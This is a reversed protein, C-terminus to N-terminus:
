LLYIPYDVKVRERWKWEDIGYQRKGSAIDKEADDLRKQDLYAYHIISWGLPCSIISKFGEKDGYSVTSHYPKVFHVNRDNYFVKETILNIKDDSTHLLDGNLNFMPIGVVLPNARVNPDTTYLSKDVYNMLFHRIDQMANYNLKEDQDVSVIWSKKDCKDLLWNRQLDMREFTHQFLTLHYAKKYRQLVEWTGDTSGGDVVLYEDVIPAVSEIARLVEHVGNQCILNGIIKM